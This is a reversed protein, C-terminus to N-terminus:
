GGAVLGVAVLALVLGLQRQRTLREGLVLWALIVTAAPFMAALVSVVALSGETTAIIFLGNGLTVLVGAGIAAPLAERSPMLRGTARVAIALMVISGAIRAPLLGWIGSDTAGLSLFILLGGFGLGALIGYRVGVAVNDEATIHGGSSITWIAILGVVLGLLVVANPLDRRVIQWVVPWVGAGVAAIPSVVAISSHAFGSYLAIVAMAGSLGALGGWLMTPGDLSGGFLPGLLLVTAFGALHNVLVVAMVRDRRSGLGGLFDGSGSLAAAALALAIAM